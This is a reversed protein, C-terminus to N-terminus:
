SPLRGSERPPTAAASAVGLVSPQFHGAPTTRVHTHHPLLYSRTSRPPARPWGGQPAAGAESLPPGTGLAALPSGSPRAPCGTCSPAQRVGRHSLLAHAQHTEALTPLTPYPARRPPGPPDAGGEPGMWLGATVEAQWPRGGLHQFFAADKALPKPLSCPDGGAQGVRRGKGWAEGAGEGCGKEQPM